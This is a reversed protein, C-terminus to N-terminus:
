GRAPGQKRRPGNKAKFELDTVLYLDVVNHADGPGCIIITRGSPFLALFERHPVPLERGDALHLTFPRFPQAEYAERIKDITM